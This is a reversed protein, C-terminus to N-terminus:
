RREREKEREREREREETLEIQHCISEKRDREAKRVNEAWARAPIFVSYYGKKQQRSFFNFYVTKEIINKKRTKM